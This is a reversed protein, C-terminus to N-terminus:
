ATRLCVGVEQGNLLCVGVEQSNLLGPTQRLLSYGYGALDVRRNATRSTRTIGGICESQCECRRTSSAGDRDGRPPTEDSKLGTSTLSGNGQGALTAAERQQAGPRPM